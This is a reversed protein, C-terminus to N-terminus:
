SAKRRESTVIKVMQGVTLQDGTGLGNITRFHEEAFRDVAMRRAIRAVTDGRRVRVLRIRYPQWGHAEAHSVVRFSTTTTRSANYVKQGSGRPGIFIFRYMRKDQRIATFRLNHIGRRSRTRAAGSASPMGNISASDLKNLRLKRAWVNVLYDYPTRGDASAATFIVGVGGPGKAVVQNPQNILRFGKPVHFRIRMHPHLFKRGRVFGQEPTDGYIMGSIKRLYIDRGNIPNPVTSGGAARAAREVREVTRPHTSMINTEDAKDPSKGALRATLRTKARLNALFGAMARSNFGARKLYRIGLKDAEFEQERSYSRLYIGLGSGVLNALEGSGSLIGVAAAGIGAFVSQSHRQAAHRATVHGIEHALVGAIEAESNALALLGRTIYIYGGPLAFANIMKTNLVTFTFQLNPLESTRALLTAVSTVYRQLETDNITGGFAPVLKQHERAGIRAEEEPSLFSLMRDGTAPNTTCGALPGVLAWAILAALHKKRLSLLPWNKAWFAVRTM